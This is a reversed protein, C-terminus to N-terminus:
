PASHGRAGHPGVRRGLAYHWPEYPAKLPGDFTTGEAADKLKATWGAQEWDLQIRSSEVGAVTRGGKMVVFDVAHMQGHDSTGPAASTPEPNVRFNKLFLSFSSVSGPSPFDLYSPKELESIAAKLLGGGAVAVTNNQNWLKVQRELSRLPSIELYYGPNAKAFQHRVREAESLLAKTEASKMHAVSEEASWAWQQKVRRGTLRLYRRLALLQYALPEAFSPLADQIKTLVDMIEAEAETITSTVGVIYFCLKFRVKLDGVRAPKLVLKRPPSM